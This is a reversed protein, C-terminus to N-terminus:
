VLPTGGSDIMSRRGPAVVASGDFGARHDVDIMDEVTVVVASL